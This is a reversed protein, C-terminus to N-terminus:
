LQPKPFSLIKRNTPLKIIYTSSSFGSKTFKAHCLLYILDIKPTLGTFSTKMDKKTRSIKPRFISPNKISILLIMMKEIFLTDSPNTQKNALLSALFLIFKVTNQHKEIQIKKQMCQCKVLCWRIPLIEKKELM